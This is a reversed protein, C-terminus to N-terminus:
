LRVNQQQEIKKAKLSKIHPSGSHGRGVWLIDSTPVEASSSLTL